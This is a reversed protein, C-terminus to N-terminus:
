ADFLFRDQSRHGSQEGCLLFAPTPFDKVVGMQELLLSVSRATMGREITLAIVPRDEISASMVPEYAKKQNSAVWWLMAICFLLSAALLPILLM